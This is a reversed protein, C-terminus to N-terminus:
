TFGDKKAAPFIHGSKYEWQLTTFGGHYAKLEGATDSEFDLYWRPPMIDLRRPWTRRIGGHESRNSANARNNKGVAGSARSGLRRPDVYTFVRAREPTRRLDYRVNYIKANPFAYVDVHKSHDKHAENWETVMNDFDGYDTISHVFLEKEMASIWEPTLHPNLEPNSIFHPTTIACSFDAHKGNVLQRLAPDIRIIGLQQIRIIDRFIRRADQNRLAEDTRGLEKVIGRIPPPRGSKGPFARRAMGERDPNEGSGTFLLNRDSFRSMLASEHKEDLLLYGFCRVALEEHGAEALRGFARCEANFPESYEYFATAMEIKDAYDNNDNYWGEVRVTWDIEWCFRFQESRFTLRDNQMVRPFISVLKLAYTQEHIKVKVVHSHLGSGLYDLFEIQQPGQFDFPKLKPGDCLPLPVLDAASEPWDPYM